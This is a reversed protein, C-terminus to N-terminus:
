RTAACAAISEAFLGRSGEMMAQADAFKDVLPLTWTGAFRTAVCGCMREVRAPKFGRMISITPARTICEQRVRNSTQTKFTPATCSLSAAHMVDMFKKKDPATPATTNTFTQKRVGSITKDAICSCAATHQERTMWGYKETQGMCKARLEPAMSKLQADKFTAGHANVAATLAVLTTCFLRLM